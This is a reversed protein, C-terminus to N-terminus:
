LSRSCNGGFTFYLIGMDSGIFILATRMDQMEAISRVAYSIIGSPPLIRILYRSQKEDLNMWERLHFNADTSSYEM